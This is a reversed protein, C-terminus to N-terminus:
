PALLPATTLLLKCMANTLQLPTSLSLGTATATATAIAMDGLNITLLLGVMDVLLLADFRNVPHLDNTAV